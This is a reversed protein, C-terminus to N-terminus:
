NLMKKITRGIVMVCLTANYPLSWSLPLSMRVTEERGKWGRLHSLVITDANQIIKHRELNRVKKDTSVLIMAMLLILAYIHVTDYM